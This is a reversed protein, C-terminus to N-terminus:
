SGPWTELAAKAEITLRADAPGKAAEELIARAADGGITELIRVARLSRLPEGFLGSEPARLGQTEFTELIQQIRQEGEAGLKKRAPDTLAGAARLGCKVLSRRAAERVRFNDHDLEAIWKRIRNQEGAMGRIGDRIVEVARGRHALMHGVSRYAADADLADLTEWADVATMLKPGEGPAPAKWLLV